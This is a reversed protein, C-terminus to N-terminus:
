KEFVYRGAKFFKSPDRVKGNFWVEYHLHPGTSRGSSGLLGIKDQFGVQQGKKVAIKYLHGYRTKLGNGHDIEVLRGYPGRRGAYSVKGPATSLVPTKYPGVMDLGSHFAPRKTYPDVRRGFISTVRANPDIPTVLPMASLAAQLGAMRDIHSALRFVQREFGDDDHSLDNANTQGGLSIVPGGTGGSEAFRGVVNDTDLGTVSIISELEHVSDLTSEELHNVFERQATALSSLRLDIRRTEASLAAAPKPEDVQSRAGQVAETVTALAGGLFSGQIRSQRTTTELETVSMLLRNSSEALKENEAVTGTGEMLALRKRLDRLNRDLTERHSIIQSLQTHKSELESTADAFREQTLVLAANLEDYASQMEALRGEYATQMRVFHQEKAAIIQDKFVVNVSAFAVWCLFGLTIVLLGVQAPASLTMFQVSGQSRHYLQREPFYKQFFDRVGAVPNTTM